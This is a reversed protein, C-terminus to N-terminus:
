VLPLLVNCSNWSNLTDSRSQLSRLDPLPTIPDFPQYGHYDKANLIIAKSEDARLLLSTTPYAWRWGYYKGGRELINTAELAVIGARSDVENAFTKIFGRFQISHYVDIGALVILLLTPLYVWM